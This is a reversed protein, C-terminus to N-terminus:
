RPGSRSARSTCRAADRRGRGRQRTRIPGDSRRRAGERGQDHGHDAEGVTGKAKYDGGTTAGTATGNVTYYTVKTDTPAPQSLTIRLRGTVTPTAVGPELVTADSVSM